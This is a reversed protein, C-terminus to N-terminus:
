VKEVEVTAKRRRVVRIIQVVFVEESGNEDMLKEAHKLAQPLTPHGWNWNLVSHAGVYFKNRQIKDKAMPKVTQKTAM